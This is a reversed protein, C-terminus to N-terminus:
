KAPPTADTPTQEIMGFRGEAAGPCAIECLQRLGTPNGCADFEIKYLVPTASSRVLDIRYPVTAGGREPAASLGIAGAPILHKLAEVFQSTIATNDAKNTVKTLKWGEEFNFEFDAKGLGAWSHVRYAKSYNPLWVLEFRFGTISKNSDSLIPERLLYPEPQYVDYGPGRGNEQISYGACGALTGLAVALLAIKL